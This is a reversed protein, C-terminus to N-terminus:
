EDDEPPAELDGWHILAARAIEEGSEQAFHGADELIIPDPCGRIMAAVQQMVPVGLVPDQTGVAAFSEGSWENGLWERAQRALEAGPADPRDPVMDPFRRVGARYRDDPFPAEYAALEEDSLEPCARKMLAPIDFGPNDRVFQRWAVFGPTLDQDGTGLATNMVLIRDFRGPMAMPLTLGILGGWDQCVLTLGKLDRQEILALISNRHFDFDYVADDVPKDSRGFGFFDPVVVRADSELFVPLMKRYLYGWTPEGHLCLFVRGARAPGEDVLHMRLGDYGPLNETYNPAWDYDSIAAFREEPTRLAEVVARSCTASRM